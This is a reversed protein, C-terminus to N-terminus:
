NVSRIKIIEVIGDFITVACKIALVGCLINVAFNLNNIAEQLETM